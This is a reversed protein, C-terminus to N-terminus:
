QNSSGTTLWLPADQFCALESVCLCFIGESWSFILYTHCFVPFHQVFRCSIPIFIADSSTHLPMLTFLQKNKNSWCMLIEPLYTFLIIRIWPSCHTQYGTLLWAFCGKSIADTRGQQSKFLKLSPPHSKKKPQKILFKRRGRPQGM